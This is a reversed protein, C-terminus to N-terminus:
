RTGNDVRVTAEHALNLNGTVIVTDGEHLGDIVSYTTANELGIQVYNWQARGNQLTFVVHRGSRLVVAEKPVVLQREVQRRVSVRVNMGSFLAQSSSLTATVSVMGNEDVLPNFATVRGEVTSADADAFPSVEVRDGVRLLPLESELVTFDVEMEGGVVTCFPETTSSRNHAKTQLNAVVGDFPASLAAQEEERVALQYQALCADYNSKIRALRMVSEPVEDTDDARYGQGILVDQMEIRAAELAAERQATTNALKWSDLEALKQGKTVHQGNRVYVAAIVGEQEWRLDAQQRAIVKGNSVLEHEMMQMHLEKVTVVADGEPSPSVAGASNAGTLGASTEGTRGACSWILILASVIGISYMRIRKKMAGNENYEGKYISMITGFKSCEECM